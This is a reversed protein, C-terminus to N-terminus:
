LMRLPTDRCFFFFCSSSPTLVLLYFRTSHHVQCLHKVIPGSDFSAAHDWCYQLDRGKGQEQPCICYQDVWTYHLDELKNCASLVRRLSPPGFVPLPPADSSLLQRRLALVRSVGVHHDAHRHSIWVARLQKVRRKAEEVGFRRCVHWDHTYVSQM